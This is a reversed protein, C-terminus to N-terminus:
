DEDHGHPPKVVPAASGGASTITSRFYDEASVRNVGRPGRGSRWSLLEQIGLVLLPIVFIGAAIVIWIM